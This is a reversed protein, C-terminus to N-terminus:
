TSNEAYRGAEYGYFVAADEADDYENMDTM